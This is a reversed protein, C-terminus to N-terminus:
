LKMGRKEMSAEGCQNGTFDLFYNLNKEESMFWEHGIVQCEVSWPHLTVQPKDGFTSSFWREIKTSLASKRVINLLQRLLQAPKDSPSEIPNLVHESDRM